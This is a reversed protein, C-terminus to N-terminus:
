AAMDYERVHPNVQAEDVNERRASKGSILQADYAIRRIQRVFCHL